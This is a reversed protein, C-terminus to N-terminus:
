REVYALQCGRVCQIMTFGEPADVILEFDPESKQPTGALWGMGVLAAAIGIRLSARIM